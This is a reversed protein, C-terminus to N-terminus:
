YRLRDLSYASLRVLSGLKIKGEDLEGDERKSEMWELELSIDVERGERGVM